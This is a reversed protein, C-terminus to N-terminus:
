ERRKKYIKIGFKGMMKQKIFREWYKRNTNTRSHCSKCLACMNYEYSDTKIYNIHHIETAIEDCLFCLGGFNLFIKDRIEYFEPPYYDNGHPKKYNPAFPNDSQEPYNNDSVKPYSLSSGSYFKYPM